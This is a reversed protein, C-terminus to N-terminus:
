LQHQQCANMSHQKLFSCVTRGCLRPQNLGTFIYNTKIIKSIIFRYLGLIQIVLLVKICHCQDQYSGKTLINRWPSNNFFCVDKKSSFICAGGVKFVTKWFIRKIHLHMKFQKTLCAYKQSCVFKSWFECATVITNCGQYKTAKTKYM